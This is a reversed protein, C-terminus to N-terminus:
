WNSMIGYGAKFGYIPIDRDSDLKIIGAGYYNLVWIVADIVVSTTLVCRCYTNNWLDSSFFDLLNTYDEPFEYYQLENWRKYPYNTLLLAQKVKEGISCDLYETAFSDFFKPFYKNVCNIANIFNEERAIEILQDVYKGHGDESYDGFRLIMKM